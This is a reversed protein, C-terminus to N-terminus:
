ISVVIDFLLKSNLASGFPETLIWVSKIIAFLLKITLPWVVKASVLIVPTSVRVPLVLWVPSATIFPLTVNPDSKSILALTANSSITISSLIIVVVDDFAFKSSRAAPVPITKIGFLLALIVFLKDTPVSLESLM